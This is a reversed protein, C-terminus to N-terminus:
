LNPYEIIITKTEGQWTVKAGLAEAVFRLPVLTKGSVIVPPSALKYEAGNVKAEKKGIWIEVITKGLKYIVKKESAVWTIEASLREGIFRMPVFTSGALIMPPVDLTYTAGDDSTATKSGIQMTVMVYKTVMVRATASLGNEDTATVIIETLTETEKIIATFAGDEKQSLDAVLEKGQPTKFSLKAGPDAKGSLVIEGKKQVVVGPNITVKPPIM